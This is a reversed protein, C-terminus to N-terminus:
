SHDCLSNIKPILTNQILELAENINNINSPKVLYDNAGDMYIKSVLESGQVLLSSFMIIPIDQHNKRIESLTELGDMVPMEIDLIILDIEESCDELIGLGIQGNEAFSHVSLHSNNSIVSSLLKRIIVSDDIILIKNM